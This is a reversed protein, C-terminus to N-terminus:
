ARPRLYLPQMSLLEAANEYRAYAEDRPAAFAIVIRDHGVHACLNVVVCDSCDCLELLDEFMLPTEECDAVREPRADQIRGGLVHM